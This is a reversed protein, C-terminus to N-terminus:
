QISLRLSMGHVLPIAYRGVFSELGPQVVPGDINLGGIPNPRDLVILSRNTGVITDSLTWIYTYFRAGVEQLDYLITDVGAEEFTENIETSTKEYLTYVEIGTEADVYGGSSYGAQEADRFGQEPAFIARLNVHSKLIGDWTSHLIM